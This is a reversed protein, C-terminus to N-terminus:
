ECRHIVAHRSQEGHLVPKLSGCVLTGLLLWGESFRRLFPYMLVAIGVVATDNLLEILVGM